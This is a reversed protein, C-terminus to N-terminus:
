YEEWLRIAGHTEIAAILDKIKLGTSAHCLRSAIELTPIHAADMVEPMPSFAATLVDIVDRKGACTGKATPAWMLNVSM